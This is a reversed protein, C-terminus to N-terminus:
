KRHVRPLNRLAQELESIGGEDTETPHVKDVPNRNYCSNKREQM